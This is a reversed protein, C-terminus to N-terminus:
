YNGYVSRPFMNTALLLLLVPFVVHQQSIIAMFVLPVAHQHNIIAMFVLPSPM